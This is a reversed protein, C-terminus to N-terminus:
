PTACSVNEAACDTCSCVLGSTHCFGSFPYVGSGFNCYDGAASCACGDLARATALTALIALGRILMNYSRSTIKGNSSSHVFFLRLIKPLGVFISASTSPASDFSFFASSQFILPLDNPVTVSDTDQLHDAPVLDAHRSKILGERWRYTTM